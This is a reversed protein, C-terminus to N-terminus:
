GKWKSPWAEFFELKPAVPQTTVTKTVTPSTTLTPKALTGGAVHELDADSLEDQQRQRLAALAAQLEDADVHYGHREAVRALADPTEADNWEARIKQDAAAANIFAAADRSTMTSLEEGRLPM